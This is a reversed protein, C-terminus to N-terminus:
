STSVMMRSMTCGSLKGNGVPLYVTYMQIRIYVNHLFTNIITLKDNRYISTDIENM